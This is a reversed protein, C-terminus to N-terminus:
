MKRNQTNRPFPELIIYKATMTMTNSSNLKPPALQKDANYSAGDPALQDPSNVNPRFSQNGNLDPSNPPWLDTLHSRADGTAAAQAPASDQQFM